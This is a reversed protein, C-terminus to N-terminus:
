VFIEIAKIHPNIERMLPVYNNQNWEAIFKLPARFKWIGVEKSELKLPSVWSKFNAIGIKDCLTQMLEMEEPDDYKELIALDHVSMSSVSALTDLTDTLTSHKKEIKKQKFAIRKHLPIYRKEGITRKLEVEKRLYWEAAYASNQWGWEGGGEPVNERMYKQIQESWYKMALYDNVGLEEKLVKTLKKSFWFGEISFEKIFEQTVDVAKEEEIKSFNNECNNNNSKREEELAKAKNTRCFHRVSSKDFGRVLAVTISRKLWRGNTSKQTGLQLKGQKAFKRLIRGVHDISCGVLEAIDRDKLRIVGKRADMYRRDNLVAWVKNETKSNDLDLLRAHRGVSYECDISPNYYTNVTNYPNSLEIHMQSLKGQYTNLRKKYELESIEEVTLNNALGSFSKESINCCTVDNQLLNDVFNNVVNANNLNVTTQSQNIFHSM